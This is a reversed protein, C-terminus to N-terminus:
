NATPFNNKVVLRYDGVTMNSLKGMLSYKTSTTAITFWNVFNSHMVDTWQSIPYSDLRKFRYNKSYNSMTDSDLKPTGGDGQM